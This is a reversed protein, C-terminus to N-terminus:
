PILVNNYIKLDRFFGQFVTANSFNTTSISSDNSTANIEFEASCQLQQDLYLRATRGDYTLMAEHWENLSYKGGCNQYNSNNYMLTLTGNKNLYYAIWRGSKGGVFVPMKQYSSTNFSASISFLRFNFNQLQDTGVFYFDNQGSHKYVGNCYVAGNQFPANELTMPRNNGTVDYADTSLPFHAIPKPAEPAERTLTASPIAVATPLETETPRPTPRETETPRPTPPEPTEQPRPTPRETETPRPAPPETKSPRPAVPAETPHETETLQLTAAMVTPPEAEQTQGPITGPLNCALVASLLACVMLIYAAKSQIKM